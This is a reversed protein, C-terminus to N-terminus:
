IAYFDKNMLSELIIDCCLLLLRNRTLRVYYDLAWSRFFNYHTDLGSVTCLGACKFHMALMANSHATNFLSVYLTTSRNEPWQTHIITYLGIGRFFFAGSCTNIPKPM